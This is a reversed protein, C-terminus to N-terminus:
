ARARVGRNRRRRRRSGVGWVLLMCTAYSASGESGCSSLTTDAPPLEPIPLDKPDPATFTDTAGPLAYWYCTTAITVDCPAWHWIGMDFRFSSTFPIPDTVHYRSMVNHGYGGFGSGASIMCHYAHSFLEKSGWSFGYYDETGTGWLTPLTDGDVYVRDDGEGWWFDVPNMFYFVNGVYVGTGQCEMLNWDSRPYTPIDQETRWKAHFYMSSVDWAYPATVVEGTLSVDQSGSNTLQVEASNQYPMLWHLYMCGDDAVGAALSSFSRLGPVSGFLDGLPACVQPLASDDFIIKVVCQRLALELDESDVSCTFRCITAPADNTRFLVVTEDSAVDAAYSHVQATSPIRPTSPDALREAVSLLLAEHEVPDSASYTRVQTGEAFQLYNVHYYFLPDLLYPESMAVKCYHAYPLPLYSTWGNARLGAIPQLFPMEYGGLLALINAEIVPDDPDDLYIRLIGPGYFPVGSYLRVITGPGDAEMMVIQPLGDPGTERRIYGSGDLNSYWNNFADDFWDPLASDTVTMSAPDTSSALHHSYAPDPLRTLRELDDMDKLLSEFTVEAGFSLGPAAMCLLAVLRAVSVPLSRRGCMGHHFRARESSSFSM